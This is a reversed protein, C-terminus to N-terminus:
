SNINIDKSKTVVAAKHFFTYQRMSRLKPVGVIDSERTSVEELEWDRIDRGVANGTSHNRCAAVIVQAFRTLPSGMPKSTRVISAWGSRRYNFNCWSSSACWAGM